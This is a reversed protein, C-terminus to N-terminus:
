HMTERMSAAFESDLGPAIINTFPGILDRVAAIVDELDTSALVCDTNVIIGREIRDEGAPTFYVFPVFYEDVQRVSVELIGEAASLVRLEPVTIYTLDPDINM